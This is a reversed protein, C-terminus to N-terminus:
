RPEGFQDSILQVLATMAETEDPGQTELRITAGVGAALLMVAVMSRASARKGNWVLSVNCRFQSAVQVLKACARAHLGLRNTLRVQRIQM